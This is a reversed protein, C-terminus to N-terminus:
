PGDPDFIDSRWASPSRWRMAQMDLVAVGGSDLLATVVGITDRLYDLSASDAVEGKLLIGEPAGRIAAVLDPAQEALLKEFPRSLFQDLTAADRPRAFKGCSSAPRFVRAAIARARYRCRNNSAAM